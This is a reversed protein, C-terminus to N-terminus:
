HREYYGEEGIEPRYEISSEKRPVIERAASGSEDSSSLLQGLFFGAFVAAGFSVAPRDRVFAKFRGWIREPDRGRFFNALLMIRESGTETIDALSYNHKERLKGSAERLAEALTDLKQSALDFQEAAIFRSQSKIEGALFRGIRRSYGSMERIAQKAGNGRQCGAEAGPLDPLSYPGQSSM